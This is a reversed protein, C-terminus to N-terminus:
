LLRYKFNNFCVCISVKFYPEFARCYVHSFNIAVDATVTILEPSDISELTLHMNELILEFVFFRICTLKFASYKFLTLKFMYNFEFLM